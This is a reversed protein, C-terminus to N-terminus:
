LWCDYRKEIMMVYLLGSGADTAGIFNGQVMINTIDTSSLDSSWVTVQLM